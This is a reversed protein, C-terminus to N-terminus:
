SYCSNGLIVHTEWGVIELHFGWEHAISQNIKDAVERLYEREKAVDGPSAIFVRVNQLMEVSRRGAGNGKSYDSM